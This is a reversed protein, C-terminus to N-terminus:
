DALSAEPASTPSLERQIEVAVLSLRTRITVEDDLVCADLLESADRVFTWAKSADGRGFWIRAVRNLRDAADVSLGAQLYAAAALELTGPIERYIGALRLHYAERDFHRAAQMYEEKAIHILAAVNHLEAHLDHSCIDGIMERGCAYHSMARPIDFQEAALRARTFHLQAEFGDRCDQSAEKARLKPGVCPLKALCCEKCGEETPCECGGDVACPSPVCRGHDLARQADVFRREDIAIKAELLWANGTSSGARTWEHRADVLWDRAVGNQGSSTIAAALNYASTGSENPDDTAWARRLAARYKKIAAEVDGAAFLENADDSIRRVRTDPEVASRPSSQCGVIVCLGVLLFTMRM